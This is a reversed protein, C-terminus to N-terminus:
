RWFGNLLSSRTARQRRATSFRTRLRSFTASFFSILRRSVERAPRGTPVLRAKTSTSSSASVTAGVSEVTSM